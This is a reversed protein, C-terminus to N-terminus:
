RRKMFQSPDNLMEVISELMGEAADIHSQHIGSNEIANLVLQAAFRTDVIFVDHPSDDYRLETTISDRNDINVDTDDIYYGCEDIDM